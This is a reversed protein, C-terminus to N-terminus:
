WAERRCKDCMRHHAGESMFSNGCTICARPRQAARRRAVDIAQLAAGRHSHVQLVSDNLSVSYGARVRKVVLSNAEPLTLRKM